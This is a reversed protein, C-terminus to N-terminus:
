LLSLSVSHVLLRSSLIISIVWVSSCFSFLFFSLLFSPFFSFSLLFLEFIEPIVDLIGVNVIYPVNYLDWFSSLSLIPDLIYKIFNHSFIDWDQLLFCIDLYLFCLPDWVLHVWVSFGLTEVSFHNSSILSNLLTAPYLILICFDTAKRYVLLSSGSVSSFVIGNLIM